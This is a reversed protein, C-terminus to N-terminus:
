GLFARNKRFTENNKWYRIFQYMISTTVFVESSEQLIFMVTAREAFTTGMRAVSNVWNIIFTTLSLEGTSKNQYNEILQPFVSVANGISNAIAIANWVPQSM